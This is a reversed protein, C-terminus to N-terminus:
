EDDLKVEYDLAEKGDLIRELREILNTHCYKAIKADSALYEEITSYKAIIKDCGIIVIESNKILKAVQIKIFNLEVDCQTIRPKRPKKEEPLVSLGLTLRQYKEINDFMQKSEPTLEGEFEEEFKSM